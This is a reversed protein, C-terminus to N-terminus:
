ATLLQLVRWLVLPGGRARLQGTLLHHLMRRGLAVDLLATLNGRIRAAVRRQPVARQIVVRQRDFVLAVHMGSANIVVTGRLKRLARTGRTSRLRRKLVSSLMLGVVNMREPEVVTVPTPECESDAGTVAVWGANNVLAPQTFVLMTFSQNIHGIYSEGYTSFGITPAKEFRAAYTQCQGQGELGLTGFICHFNVIGVAPGVSGLRRQLDRQTDALIDRARLLRLPMGRKVQCFFVVDSGRIMQPSRVYPEDESVLVGLPHQRFLSPLKEVGVGVARAYEEAAPLRRRRAGRKIASERRHGDM